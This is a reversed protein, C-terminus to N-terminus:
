GAVVPRLSQALLRLQIAPEEMALQAAFWDQVMSCVQEPKARTLARPDNFLQLDSQSWGRETLMRALAEYDDRRPPLHMQPSRRGEAVAEFVATAQRQLPESHEPESMLPLVAASVEGQAIFGYCAEVSHKSLHKLNELFATAITRLMAPSAALAQAAHKRRLAAVAELLYKAVAVDDRQESKLKAVENLRQSYWEPFEEKIIRWLAVRQFTRDIDGVSDGSVRFPPSEPIEATAGPRAPELSALGSLKDYHGAILWAGGAVIALVSSARLLRRITHRPRAGGTGDPRKRGEAGATLFYPVHQAEAPHMAATTRSAAEPAESAHAFTRDAGARRVPQQHPVHRVGESARHRESPPGPPTPLPAPRLPFVVAAPRWDPFGQRWVLDTARLHGLEILKQMEVNTLPGYQQGERALYWEIHPDAGAM